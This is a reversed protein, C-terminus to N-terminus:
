FAVNSWCVDCGGAVPCVGGYGAMRDSDMVYEEMVVVTSRIWGYAGYGPCIRM